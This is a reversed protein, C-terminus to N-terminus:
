MAGMIERYALAEQLFVEAGAKVEMYVEFFSLVIGKRVSCFGAFLACGLQACRRSFNQRPDLIVVGQQEQYRRQEDEDWADSLMPQGYYQGAIEVDCIVSMRPSCPCARVDKLTCKRACSCHGSCICLQDRVYQRLARKGETRRHEGVYIGNLIAYAAERNAETRRREPLLRHASLTASSSSSSTTSSSTVSNQRKVAMTATPAPTPRGMGTAGHEHLNNNNITNVSNWDAQKQFGLYKESLMALVMNPARKYIPDLGTWERAFPSNPDLVVTEVHRRYERVDAPRCRGKNVNNAVYAEVAHQVYAAKKMSIIEQDLVGSIDESTLLRKCAQFIVIVQGPGPLYREVASVSLYQSQGTQATSSSNKGRHPSSGCLQLNTIEINLRAYVAYFLDEITQLLQATSDQAMQDEVQEIHFKIGSPANDLEVGYAMLIIFVFKAIGYIRSYVAVICDHRERAQQLPEREGDRHSSARAVPMQVSKPKQMM